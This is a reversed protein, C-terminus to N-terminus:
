PHYVKSFTVVLVLVLQALSKHLQQTIPVVFIVAALYLM